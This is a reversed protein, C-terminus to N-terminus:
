TYPRTNSTHTDLTNMLETSSAANETLMSLTFKEPQQTYLYLTRNTHPAMNRVDKYAESLMWSVLSRAKQLDRHAVADLVIQKYAEAEKTVLPAAQLDVFLDKGVYQAQYYENVFCIDAPVTYGNGTYNTSFSFVGVKEDPLLRTVDAILRHSERWPCKVILHKPSDNLRSEIISFLLNVAKEVDWLDDTAKLPWEEVQLMEPSGTAYGAMETNSKDPAPDVPKFHRQGIAPDTEEDFIHFVDRNPRTEFLYLDVFFNGMRGGRGGIKGETDPYYFLETFGLNINRGVVYIPKGGTVEIQFYFYRPPVNLITKGDELLEKPTPLKCSNIDNNFMNSTVAATVAQIYAQPTGETATRIGFGNSGNLNKQSSTYVIHYYNM